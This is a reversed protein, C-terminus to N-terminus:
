AEGEGDDMAAAEAIWGVVAARAGSNGALARRCIAVAESDGAEGAAIMWQEIREDTIDAEPADGYPWESGGTLDAWVARGLADLAADDHDEYAEVCHERVAATIQEDTYHGDLGLTETITATLETITTITM